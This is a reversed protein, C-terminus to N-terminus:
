SLRRWYHGFRPSRMRSGASPVQGLVAATGHRMAALLHVPQHKRGGSGRLTKGDVAVAPWPGRPTPPQVAPPAPAPSLCALWAGVAADLADGDVDALVKRVTSEDPRCVAATLPDTRVGLRVLVQGPADATWEGIASLSKAGALVACVAVSLLSALRHRVGRRDRPDPVSALHTVLGQEPPTPRDHHGL